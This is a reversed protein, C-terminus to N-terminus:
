WRVLFYATLVLFFVSGPDLMAKRSIEIHFPPVALLASASLGVFRGGLRHGLAYVALVTGTGLLISPLLAALDTPGMIRMFIAQLYLLLPPQSVFPQPGFGEIAPYALYLFDRSLYRAVFAYEAEDGYLFHSGIGTTRLWLAVAVIPLVWAHYGMWRIWGQEPAFRNRAALRVNKAVTAM